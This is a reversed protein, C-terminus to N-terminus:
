KSCAAQYADDQAECGTGACVNAQTLQCDSTAKLADQCAASAQAHADCLQKCVDVPFALGCAATASKDCVQKCSELKAASDNEDDDCAVAVFAL